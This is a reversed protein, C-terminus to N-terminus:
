LEEKNLEQKFYDGLFEQTRDIKRQQEDQPIYHMMSDRSAWGGAAQLLDHKDGDQSHDLFGRVWTKRMSHTSIGHPNIDARAAAAKFARYVAMYYLERVSSRNRPFLPDQPRRFLNGFLFENIYDALLERAYEPLRVTRPKRKGKMNKQRVTLYQRVDDGTRVDEIRLTLLERVRYGTMVGLKILLEIQTRYHGKLGKLIKGLEETTMNRCAAM